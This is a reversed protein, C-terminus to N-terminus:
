KGILKLIRENLSDLNKLENRESTNFEIQRSKLFYFFFFIFNKLSDDM